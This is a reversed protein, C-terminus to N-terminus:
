GDLDVVDGDRQLSLITHSCGTNLWLAFAILHGIWDVIADQGTVTFVNTDLIEHM